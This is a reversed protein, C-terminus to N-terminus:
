GPLGPLSLPEDEVLTPPEAAGEPPVVTVFAPDWTGFRPDVYVDVSEARETITQSLAVSVDTAAAELQERLEAELEEFSPATRERVVIVHYGFQTEVPEGVEGVPQAVVAEAFPGVYGAPSSCGLDGGAEGSATDDSAEAAVAAFGDGAELRAVVDDIGAQAAAVQEETPEYSPDRLQDTDETFAVLIHSVCAETREPLVAEYAAQVEEDSVEAPGAEERLDEEIALQDAVLRVILDQLEQPLETFYSSGPIPAGSSPDVQETATLVQEQAATLDAESVEVGRQAVLDELLFAQAYLTVLAAGAAPSYSGPAEGTIQVQGTIPDVLDQPMVLAAAAPDEALLSLQDEVTRVSVTRGELTLAAPDAASGRDACAGALLALLATLALLRKM